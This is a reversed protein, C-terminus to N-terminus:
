LELGLAVLTGLHDKPRAQEVSQSTGYLMEGGRESTVPRSMPSPSFRIPEQIWDRIGRSSLPSLHMQLPGAAAREQKPGAVAGVDLDHEVSLRDMSHVDIVPVGGVLIRVARLVLELCLQLIKRSFTMEAKLVVPM